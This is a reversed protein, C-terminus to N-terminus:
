TRTAAASWPSHPHDAGQGPHVGAPRVGVPLDGRAVGPLRRRRPLRHAVSGRDLGPILRGAAAPVGGGAGAGVARGGAAEAAPTGRVRGHGGWRGLGRVAVM